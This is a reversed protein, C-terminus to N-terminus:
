FDFKLFRPNITKKDGPPALASGQVWVPPLLATRPPSATAPLKIIQPVLGGAAKKLVGVQVKHFDAGDGAV